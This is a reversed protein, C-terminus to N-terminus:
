EEGISFDKGVCGVSVPRDESGVDCGAFAEESCSKSKKTPVQITCCRRRLCRSACPVSHSVNEPVQLVHNNNSPWPSTPPATRRAGPTVKRATGRRDKSGAVFKHDM